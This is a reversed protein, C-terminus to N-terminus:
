HLFRSAQIKSLEKGDKDFRKLLVLTPIGKEKIQFKEYTQM